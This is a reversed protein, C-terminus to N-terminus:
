NLINNNHRHENFQEIADPANSLNEEPEWTDDDPSYGKWRVLYLVKGHEIKKDVIHSVEYEADDEEIEPPDELEGERPQHDKFFEVNIVRHARSNAPLDLEYSNVNARRVIKFPGFYVPALKSTAAFKERAMPSIIAKRHVFVKDGTHYTKAPRMRRDHQKKQQQQSALIREKVDQIIKAQHAIFDDVAPARSNTSGNLLSLPTSPIYGLDAEFPTKGTTANVSSNIAFEIMPLKSHWPDRQTELYCRLSEIMTRNERETQGDTQPHHATSMKLESGLMKWLNKWFLSIFRPDRDSVMSHPVGHLRIINEVILSATGKATVTKHTPIIHCRKTLRDVIVLIADFRDKGSPYLGTVFDLSISEWRNIPIPLPQLQGQPKVTAGKSRKCQICSSCFQKISTRMRPWFFNESLRHYTKLFGFHGSFPADHAEKIITNIKTEPVCLRKHRAVEYLLGTDSDLQFRHDGEPVPIKDLKLRELIRSFFDDKSYESPWDKLEDLTSVDSELVANIRSLADAATNKKGQLYVIKLGSFEEILDMWRSMRRSLNPQTKFYRLSQHDTFATVNADLLYHRWKQLATVLALMEQERVDYNLQAGTLKGSHYAVPHGEQSLVAGLCTGSADTHLQFDKTVDPIRLVPASTMVTKLKEFAQQQRDTWKFDKGNNRLLDTLSEAISAFRHVFRRYFNCFGLFSRLDKINKPVPWDRVAQLKGPEMHIENHSILHGVFNISKMFFECKSPKCYLKMERLRDLVQRVHKQHEEMSPSYILIDDLYVIVFRDLFDRLADNMLRQFSAPANCLGFPMVLWEYSGYRSTFATKPVDDDAIRLQYYGSQLDLKSFYVADRLRDLQENMDPLPYRNKITINNLARYDCCFRLTGDPKNVFLVPAAFASSSPRILGKDLLNDLVKRLEALESPPMRYYRRATPRSGPVLIIQHDVNRRPPLADPLDDPFLDAYDSLLSDTLLQTPKSPEEQKPRIFIAFTDAQDDHRLIQQLKRINIQQITPPQSDRRRKTLKLGSATVVSTDKWNIHIHHFNMFDAGLLVDYCAIPAVPLLLSTDLENLVLHCQAYTTTTFPAGDAFRLNVPSGEQTTTNTRQVFTESLLTRAAGTDLLISVNIDNLLGNLKPINATPLVNFNTSCKNSNNTDFIETTNPPQPPQKTTESGNASSPIKSTPKSTSESTVVM